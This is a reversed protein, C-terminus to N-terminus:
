KKRVYGAQMDIDAIGTIPDIGRIYGYVFYLETKGDYTAVTPEGIVMIKGIDTTDPKLSTVTTDKQLIVIPPSWNTNTAYGTVTHTGSFAAFVVNADETFYLGNGVFTPQIAEHGTRNVSDPLVVKEWTGTPFTGSTLVYVSIKHTDNDGDYEDDTWISRVVGDPTYYLFPNGQTGSNDTLDVFTSPFYSGRLPPNPLDSNLKYDGLNINNGLFGTYTYVDATYDTTYSDSLAFIVTYSGDANPRFSLGYPGIIADNLDNFWTFPSPLPAMLNANLDM